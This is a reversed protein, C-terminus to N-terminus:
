TPPTDVSDVRRHASVSPGGRAAVEDAPVEAVVLHAAVQAGAPHTLDIAGVISPEVPVHRQLDQGLRQGGLRIADPSELLFRARHRREVMRVDDRDILDAGRARQGVDRHLEDLALREALQEGGAREGHLPEELEGDLDGVPERPRVLGSDDM